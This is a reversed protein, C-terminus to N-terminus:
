NQSMQTENKTSQKPNEAHVSKYDAFLFLTTEEKELWKGQTKIKEKNCCSPHWCQTSYSASLIGAKRGTKERPLQINTQNNKYVNKRRNRSYQPTKLTM